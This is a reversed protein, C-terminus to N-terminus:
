LSLNFNEILLENFFCSYTAAEKNTNFATEEVDAQGTSRGSNVDIAVIAETVNVVISGGSPLIVEPKSTEEVQRDLHFKSFLPQPEDYFMIRTDVQPMARDVFSRVLEYTAYDDILIEQVESTLYDRITRIALNSEQFLVKPTGSELSREVIQYWTDMLGDLDSQLEAYSRNIGATRVIVGMGPPIKLREVAQRLKYRQGEDSIKRSVGGRQTGVMLVLYRGPLSLNTTLTAGKADRGDKVVQVILDQGRELVDQISPRMRGGENQGNPPWNRFYTSHIDNIQLFGNREAGIDLFAAQLSPEIRTITAKYVNGRLQGSDAREVELEVLQDNDAIAVRCEEPHIANILMRRAM